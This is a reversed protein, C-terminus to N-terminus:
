HSGKGLALWMTSHSLQVTSVGRFTKWWSWSIAFYFRSPVLIGWNWSPALCSSSSPFHSYFSSSLLLRNPKFFPSLFNLSSSSFALLTKRGLKARQIKRTCRLFRTREYITTQKPRNRDKLKSGSRKMTSRKGM